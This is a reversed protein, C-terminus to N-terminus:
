VVLAADLKKILKRGREVEGMYGCDKPVEDDHGYIHVTVADEIMDSSSAIQARCSMLLARVAPNMELADSM